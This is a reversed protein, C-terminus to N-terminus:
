TSRTPWMPQTVSSSRTSANSASPAVSSRGSNRILYIRTESITMCPHARTYKSVTDKRSARIKTTGTPQETSGPNPRMRISLNRIEQHSLSIRTHLASGILGSLRKGEHFLKEVVRTKLVLRQLIAIDHVPDDHPDVAILDEDIDSRLGLADDRRTLEGAQVALLLVLERM